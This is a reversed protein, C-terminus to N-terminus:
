STVETQTKTLHKLSELATLDCCEMSSSFGELVREVGRKRGSGERVILEVVIESPHGCGDGSSGFVLRETDHIRESIPLFVNWFKPLPSMPPPPMLFETALYQILAPPHAIIHALSSSFFTQSILPLLTSHSQSHLILRAESHLNDIHSYPSLHHIHTSPQKKVLAYLQSLCKYTEPHSGNDVLLTEISDIVVDVRGSPEQLVAFLMSLCAGFRWYTCSKSKETIQVLETLNDAENYGPIHDTWDYIEFSECLSAVTLSSPPYLLCFLIIRRTSNKGGLHAGLVQRLIPLSSQALSSQLILLSHKSSENNLIAPLLVM